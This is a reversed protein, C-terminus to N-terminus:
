NNWNVPQVKATKFKIWIAHIHVSSYKQSITDCSEACWCYTRGTYIHQASCNVPSAANFNAIGRLGNCSYIAWTRLIRLDFKSVKEVMGADLLDKQSLKM